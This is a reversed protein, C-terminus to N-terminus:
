VKITIFATTCTGKIPSVSAHINLSARRHLLWTYYKHGDMQLRMDSVYM